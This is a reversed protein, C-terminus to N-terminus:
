ERRRLSCRIMVNWTSEYTTDSVAYVDAGHTVLDGPRIDTGVPVFLRYTNATVLAGFDEGQLATPMSYLWGKASVGSSYSVVDDGYANQTVVRHAITIDMTMAPAAFSRLHALSADSFFPTSM